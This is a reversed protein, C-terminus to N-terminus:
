GVDFVHKAVEDMWPGLPAATEALALALREQVVAHIGTGGVDPAAAAARQGEDLWASQGRREREVGVRLLEVAPDGPRPVVSWLAYRHSIKLPARQPPLPHGAARLVLLVVQRRELTPQSDLSDKQGNSEAA